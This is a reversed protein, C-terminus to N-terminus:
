LACTATSITDTTRTTGGERRERGKTMFGVRGQEEEEEEEKPVYGARMRHECLPIITFRHRDSARRGQLPM